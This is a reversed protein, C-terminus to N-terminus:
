KAGEFAYGGGQRWVYGCYPDGFHMPMILAGRGAARALMKARSELAQGARLVYRDNWHPNAIQIP